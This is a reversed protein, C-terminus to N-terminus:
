WAVPNEIEADRGTGKSGYALPKLSSSQRRLRPSMTAVGADDDLFRDSVIQRRGLGNIRSDAVYKIFGLNKADIMVEPFLGDLINHDHSKGIGDKFRQPVM